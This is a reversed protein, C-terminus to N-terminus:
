HQVPLVVAGPTQIGTMGLGSNDAATVAQLLDRREQDLIAQFNREGASMNIKALERNDNTMHALINAQFIQAHSRFDEDHQAKLESRGSTQCTTYASSDIINDNFDAQCRDSQIQHRTAYSSSQNDFQMREELAKYCMSIATSNKAAMDKVKGTALVNITPTTGAQLPNILIPKLHQCFYYAAVFPYHNADPTSSPIYPAYNDNKLLPFDTPVLYEYPDVPAGTLLSEINMDEGAHTGDGKCKLLTDSAAFYDNTGTAGFLNCAAKMEALYNAPTDIHSGQQTLAKHLSSGAAVDQEKGITHQADRCASSTDPRATAVANKMTEATTLNQKGAAIQADAIMGHIQTQLYQGANNLGAMISQWIPQLLDQTPNQTVIGIPVVTPVQAHAPEAVVVSLLCLLASTATIGARIKNAGKNKAKETM